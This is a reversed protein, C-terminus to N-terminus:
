ETAMLSLHQATLEKGYHVILDIVEEVDALTTAPNLLTFKLYQRNDVKTGAVVANGSRF